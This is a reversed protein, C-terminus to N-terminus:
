FLTKFSELYVEGEACVEVKDVGEAEEVEFTFTPDCGLLDRVAEEVEEWQCDLWAIEHEVDVTIVFVAVASELVTLETVREERDVGEVRAQKGFLRGQVHLLNRRNPLIQQEVWLGSLYEDSAPSEVEIM